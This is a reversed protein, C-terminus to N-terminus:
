DCDTARVAVNTGHWLLKRNGLKAHGKFADGPRTVEFAEEVKCKRHGQTNDTYAQLM